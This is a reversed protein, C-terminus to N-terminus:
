KNKRYKSRRLSDFRLRVYIFLSTKLVICFCLYHNNDTALLVIYQPLLTLLEMIYLTHHVRFAALYSTLYQRIFGLSVKNMLSQQNYIARAIRKNRAGIMFDMLLHRLFDIAISDSIFLLAYLLIRNRFM